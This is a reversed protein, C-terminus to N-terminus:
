FKRFFRVFQAGAIGFQVPAEFNFGMWKLWKISTKNQIWVYNSLVECGESMSRVYSECGVLFSKKIKVLEKSALLWPVGVSGRLSVGFIAIVEGNVTISWKKVSIEVSKRLADLPELGTSLKIEQIDADKLRPALSECDGDHFFRVEPQTDGLTPKTM